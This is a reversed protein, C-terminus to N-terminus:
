PQRCTHRVQNTFEGTKAKVGSAGPSPVLGAYSAPNRYSPFRSIEEVEAIILMAVIPGVGPPTTLLQATPNGEAPSYITKTLPRM